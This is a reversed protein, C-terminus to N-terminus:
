VRRMDISRRWKAHLWIVVGLAATYVPEHPLALNDLSSFNHTGVYVCWVLGGAAILSAIREEWVIPM